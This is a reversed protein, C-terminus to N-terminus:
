LHKLRDSFDYVLGIEISGRVILMSTKFQFFQSLRLFLQGMM